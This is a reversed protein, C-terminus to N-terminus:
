IMSANHNDKRQRDKALLQLEDQTLVCGRLQKQRIMEAHESAAAIASSNKEGSDCELEKNSNINNHINSPSCISMTPSVLLSNQSGSSHQNHHIPASHNKNNPNTSSPSSSSSSSTNGCSPSRPLLGNHHVKLGYNQNSPNM